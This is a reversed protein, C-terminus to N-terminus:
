QLRHVRYVHHSPATLLFSGLSGRKIVVKDGNALRGDDDTVEWTQDSDLVIIARGPTRATLAVIQGNERKPGAATLQRAVAATLGFQRPDNPNAIPAPQPMAAAASAPAASVPATSAPVPATARVPPVAPSGAASPPRNAQADYCALRADPAAITACRVSDPNPGDDTNAAVPLVPVLVCYLSLFARAGTM